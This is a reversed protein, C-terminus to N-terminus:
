KSDPIYSNSDACLRIPFPFVWIGNIKVTKPLKQCKEPALLHRISFNCSHFRYLEGLEVQLRTRLLQLRRMPSDPFSISLNENTKVTKPMKWPYPPTQDFLRLLSISLARRTWSPTPYTVTPTPAYAFRSLFYEFRSSPYGVHNKESKSGLRKVHGGARNPDVFVNIPLENIYMLFYGLASKNRCTVLSYSVSSDKM